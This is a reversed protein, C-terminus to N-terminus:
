RKRRGHPARATGQRRPAAPLAPVFTEGALESANGEPLELPEKDGLSEVMGEPVSWRNMFEESTAGATRETRHSKECEACMVAVPLARLRSLAIERKCKQCIGYAGADLREFAAHIESLRDEAKAILDAHLEFEESSRAAELGDGPETLADGAQDRRLEHVRASEKERLHTLLNRLIKNRESGESETLQPM